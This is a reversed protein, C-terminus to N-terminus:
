EARLRGLVAGLEALGGLIPQGNIRRGTQGSGTSVRGVVRFPPVREGALWAVVFAGLSLVGAGMSDMGAMGDAHIDGVMRVSWWWGIAALALLAVPVVVNVGLGPSPRAQTNVVPDAM